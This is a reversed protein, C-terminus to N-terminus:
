GVVRIEPIPIIFKGGLRRYERQQDLIEAAFNWTLLLVYDPRRNLLWDPSVIPLHTGPTHLGQKETSRDVVFDVTERGIGLFNLLTSGKASAGYVALRDGRSKLERLLEVLQNRLRDVKASFDLYFDAKGLGLEREIRLTDAVAPSPSQDCERTPRGTRWWPTSCDNLHRVFLRITGGHIAIHEVDDIALDHRTFLNKLATCSFYCLHEHYITDFETNEILDRVYPVEFVAVGNPKLIRRIGDVVGNLDAVHALVNNAHVVDASRGQSRLNDAFATGFFANETPVGRARAVDAINSAPEVGLVAIGDAVYNKLLYGDNSAIEVVLDNEDWRRARILRDAIARANALVTDSYSSFYLYHSFLREPPVTETIQVLSCHPCFVLDLPFVDEPRGLAETPIL